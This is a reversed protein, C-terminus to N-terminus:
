KADGLFEVGEVKKTRLVHEDYGKVVTGFCSDAEYPKHDHQSGPGHNTTNDQISVYQAPGSLAM